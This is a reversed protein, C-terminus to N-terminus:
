GDIEEFRNVLQGNHEKKDLFMSLPRIYLQGILPNAYVKAADECMIKRLCIQEDSKCLFYLEGTESHKAVAVIGNNSPEIYAEAEGYLALYVVMDEGEPSKALGKVLYDKNKFHRYKHGIKLKRDGDEDLYSELAKGNKGCNVCMKAVEKETMDKGTVKKIIDIIELRNKKPDYAQIDYDCCIDCIKGGNFLPCERYEDHEKEECSCWNCSCM